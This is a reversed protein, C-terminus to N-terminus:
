SPDQYRPHNWYRAEPTAAAREAGAQAQGGERSTRIRRKWELRRPPLFEGKSLGEDLGEFLEVFQEVESEDLETEDNLKATFSIAPHRLTELVYNPEM